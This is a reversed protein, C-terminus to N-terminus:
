LVMTIQWGKIELAVCCFSTYRTVRGYTDTQVLVAETAQLSLLKSLADGTKGQQLYYIGTSGIQKNSLMDYM